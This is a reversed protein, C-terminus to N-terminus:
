KKTQVQMHGFLLWDVYRAKRILWTIGVCCVLIICTKTSLEIVAYDTFKYTMIFALLQTHLIYIEMTYGGIYALVRKCVKPIYLLTLCFVLSGWAPFVVLTCINVIMSVVNESCITRLGEAFLPESAYRMYCVCLCYGVLGVGTIIMRKINSVILKKETLKLLYGVTYFPFYMVVYKTAFRYENWGLVEVIVCLVSLLILWRKYYKSKRCLWLIFSLICLVWLFWLGVNNPRLIGLKIYSLLSVIIGPFSYGSLNTRLFFGLVLWIVYPVMLRVTRKRMWANDCVTYASAYGSLIMFLTMHFAYIFNFAYTSTYNDSYYYQICHGLVVLVIAGGKLIDLQYNRSRM